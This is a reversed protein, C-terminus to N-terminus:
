QNTFTVYLAVAIVFGMALNYPWVVYYNFSLMALGDNIFFAFLGGIVLGLIIYILKEDENINAM